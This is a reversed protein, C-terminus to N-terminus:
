SAVSGLATGVRSSPRGLLDTMSRGARVVADLDVGTEIGLGELMWLLDETALNGTASGAFPCGGIGGASSDFCTIGARLGAYVNALAQGYTDHFHLALRDIGVGVREHARVLSTVHGATGVGITDGLSVQACGADVLARSVEAVATVDVRGEWPDGFCMSVYGRVRMSRAVAEEVVETARQLALERTANLNRRAFEQTASVFVAISTAGADIALELGRHNPVLVPHRDLEDLGCLVDRADALQPVWRPSVFSTAEVIGLGAARLERIFHIKRHTPVVESEAQLGDRPGVEYVTM